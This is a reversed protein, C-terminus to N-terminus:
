IALISLSFVLFMKFLSNFNLSFHNLFLFLLCFLGVVISFLLSIKSLLLAAGALFAIKGLFLQAFMAILTFNGLM